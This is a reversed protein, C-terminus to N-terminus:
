QIFFNDHILLHFYISIFHLFLIVANCLAYLFLIVSFEHIQFAYVQIACTDIIMNGICLVMSWEVSVNYRKFAM